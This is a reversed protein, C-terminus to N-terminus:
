NIHRWKKCLDAAIREGTKVLEIADDVSSPASGNWKRLTEEVVKSIATFPIEGRIFAAVAAEDAGILLPPYAGGRKGAMRAISYCPFLLDDINRFELNLGSLPIYDFGSEILELRDPWAIAAAAPFRMDAPSLLMKMTGDCFLVIGHVHSTPHILADVKGFPLNFLQMAEICEIGKNMMTASDVTIKAGMDWTPHTLADAPTVHDLQSVTYDRFPGGSATLWIKEVEHRPSSRLCQWVASHESDIPRLQGCRKVMPTVWPGAAVISEKNALSVDKDTELAKQLAKIASVGSSAFVAHDIEDDSAIVSLGEEGSMCEFGSESFRGGQPETLCLKKSGHARALEILKNKNSKAALAVVQFKQPFRACIDLVASGVSGTAGIVAIRVRGGKRM